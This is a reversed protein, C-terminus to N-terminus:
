DWSVVYESDFDQVYRSSVMVGKATTVDQVVLLAGETYALPIFDRKMTFLAHNLGKWSVACEMSSAARFAAPMNSMLRRPNKQITLLLVRGVPSALFNMAGQHGMKRLAGEFGGYEGSLQRAGTYLMKLLIGSPYQFFETFRREGGAELCRQMAAEGALQRVVELMGNLIMGRVKFEPLILSLRQSLEEDSGAVM